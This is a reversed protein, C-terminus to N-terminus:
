SDEKLVHVDMQPFPISISEKDFREKVTRTIDWYVDWYDATKTWPRAVFNVSSDALEHMKVVPAPTSLVKSHATLVDELIKQAKEIDDSYGIGFVMDVRRTSSGTINTIVGGWISSNPVVVIQNDFTLITTSVLTMANVKGTVGAVSVADGIDYPRYLLIMVGSAFNSLTGQLAFGVIFGVMGMAALIPGIDLGLVSLAVIIGIFFTVKRVTNVFFDRLLESTKKLAGIARQTINGLIVSIIKTAILILIFWLIKLGWAIGGKKDVIWDKIDTVMKTIASADITTDMPPKLVALYKEYADVEGGKAALSNKIVGCLALMNETKATLQKQLEELNKKNEDDASIGELSLLKIDCDSLKAAVAKLIDLSVKMEEKLDDKTLPKLLLELRDAKVNIEKWCTKAALGTLESDLAKMQEQLFVNGVEEPKVSEQALGQISLSFLLILVLGSIWVRYVKM